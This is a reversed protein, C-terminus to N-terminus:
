PVKEFLNENSRLIQYMASTLTKIKHHDLELEHIENVAEFIEHLLSQEKVTTVSTGNIFISLDRYCWEGYLGRDSLLNEDLKVSVKHGFIDVTKQPTPTIQAATM